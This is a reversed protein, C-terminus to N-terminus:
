HVAEEGHPPNDLLDRCTQLLARALRTAESQIVDPTADTHENLILAAVAGVLGAAAAEYRDHPPHNRLARDVAEMVAATVITATNAPVPQRHRTPTNVVVSRRIQDHHQLLPPRCLVTRV